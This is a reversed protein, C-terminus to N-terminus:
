ALLGTHTLQVIPAHGPAPVVLLWAIFVVLAAMIVWYVITDTM